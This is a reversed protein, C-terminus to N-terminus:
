RDEDEDTRTWCSDLGLSVLEKCGETIARITRDTILAKDNLRLHSLASWSAIALGSEETLGICNLLELERLARCRDRIAMFGVDTLHFAEDLKLVTLGTGHEAIAAFGASTINRCADLALFDLEKWNNMIAGLLADNLERAQLYKIHPCLSSIKSLDEVTLDRVFTLDLAEIALTEGKHSGERVSALFDVGQHALISKESTGKLSAILADIKSVLDKSFRADSEHVTLTFDKTEIDGSIKQLRGKITKNDVDIGAESMDRFLAEILDTPLRNQKDATERIGQLRSLVRDIARSDLSLSAM